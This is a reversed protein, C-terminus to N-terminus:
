FGSAGHRGRANVLGFGPTEKLLRDSLSQNSLSSKLSNRSSSAVAVGQDDDRALVRGNQFYIPELFGPLMSRAVADRFGVGGAAVNPNRRPTFISITDDISIGLSVLLTPGLAAVAFSRVVDDGVEERETLKSASRLAARHLRTARLWSERVGISSDFLGLVRASACRRRPLARTRTALRLAPVLRLAAGQSSNTRAMARRM